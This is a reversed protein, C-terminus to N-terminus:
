NNHTLHSLAKWRKILFYYVVVCEIAPFLVMVIANTTIDPYFAGGIGLNRSLLPVLVYLFLLYIIMATDARKSRTSFNLILMIGLDRLIFGFVAILLLFPRLNDGTSFQHIVMSGWSDTKSVVSFLIVTIFGFLFSVPLTLVWLPMNKFLNKFDKSKFNFQLLRFNVVDKVETLALFYTLVVLQLFSSAFAMLLGESITAHPLFCFYGYQFVFSTLLFTIWYNPADYFQLEARMSRYLGAVVWFTYFLASLIALSVPESVLGFWSVGAWAGVGTGKFFFGSTLPRILGSVILFGFLFIRSSRIKTTGLGKRIMMLSILIMAGHLMIMSIVLLFGIKIQYGPNDMELSTFLFILLCLLSGYWNYITSGFLKGWALKWPGINSMRQWDWTRDNYEELVADSSSKIGWFMGILLIGGLSVYHLTENAHWTDNMLILASVAIIIAPMAILRQPSFELWINKAFEANWRLLKEM